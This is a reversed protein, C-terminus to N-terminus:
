DGATQVSIPEKYNDRIYEGKSDILYYKSKIVEVSNVDSASIATYSWEPESRQQIIVLDFRFKNNWQVQKNGSKIPEFVSNEKNRCNFYNETKGQANYKIIKKTLSYVELREDELLKCNFSYTYDGIEVQPNDCPGYINLIFQSEFAYPNIFTNTSFLSVQLDVPFDFNFDVDADGINSKVPAFTFTTAKIWEPKDTVVAIETRLYNESNLYESNSLGILWCEMYYGNVYLKGKKKALVDKELIEYAKNRAQRTKQGSSSLFLVPLKKSVIGRTFGTIVNNTSEYSWQYDRLDNYAAFIGDQGFNIKEGYNNLYYFKDLM